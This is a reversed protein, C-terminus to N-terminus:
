TKVHDLTELTKLDFVTVSDDRGNSTFGRNLDAAVAVGHVGKTDPIKGKIEGSDADLVDVQTSHSVYVRRGAADVSVYDWGGDGPVPITKLLRFGAPEAAGAWAVALAALLLATLTRM